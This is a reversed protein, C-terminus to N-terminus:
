RNLEITEIMKKGVAVIAQSSFNFQMNLVADEQKAASEKTVRTGCDKQHDDLQAKTSFRNGCLRNCIYISNAHVTTVHRKHKYKDLFVKGCMTCPFVITKDADQHYLLHQQLNSSFSFRADCHPCEWKKAGTHVAQHRRLSSTDSFAKQCTLCSYRRKQHLSEYHRKMTKSDYFERNCEPCVKRMEIPGPPSTM